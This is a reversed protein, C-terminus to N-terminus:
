VLLYGCSKFFLRGRPDIGLLEAGRLSKQPKMWPKHRDISCEPCYWDGEPLLDNAVGVCKSHYAAPCGDCCILSGDMKCLCCEDSNWDTTDDVVEDNLYTIGAIDVPAKRKKCVEYSVNRDFVIDPEAALSRRNIESRIAEVEILDDCLCKLIEVKVSAPQEYYDTKFIKFCSLDFGPKLGSGHILFYEIM